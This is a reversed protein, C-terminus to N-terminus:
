HPPTDVYVVNHRDQCPKRVGSRLFIRTQLLVAKDALKQGVPGVRLSGVM